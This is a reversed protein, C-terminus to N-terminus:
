EQKNGSNQWFHNRVRLHPTIEMDHGSGHQSRSLRCEKTAKVIVEENKDNQAFIFPPDGQVRCRRQRNMSELLSTKDENICLKNATLYIKMNEICEHIRIQNDNRNKSSFTFTSDDAYCILTGCVKCNRSFLCELRMQAIHKITTKMQKFMSTTKM